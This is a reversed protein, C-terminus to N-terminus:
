HKAPLREEGVYRLPIKAYLVALRLLFITFMRGFFSCHLSSDIPIVRPRELCGVSPASYGRLKRRVAYEM